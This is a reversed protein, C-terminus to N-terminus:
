DSTSESNQNKELDVLLAKKITLVDPFILKTGRNVKALVDKANTVVDRVIRNDISIPKNNKDIYVERIYKETAPCMNSILFAAQTGLVEGFRITTCKGYREINKDYIRKYKDYRSSIPILWLIAENQNDRFAFFCPRDAYKGDVIEKNRMLCDDPFDIYYEDSLFCFQWDSM